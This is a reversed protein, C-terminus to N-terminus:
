RISLRTGLECDQNVLSEFVNGPIEGSFIQIELGPLRQCLDLMGRVKAAMGGTVDTEASGGLADALGPLTEPTIKPIIVGDQDLVGEYNGALLIRAPHLHQALYDFIQETSIITGGKEMDFAVDGYVLPVLGAQLALRAPEVALSKIVGGACIASASPQCRLAPIDESILAKLVVQNLKGASHGVMVFGRWDERSRAGLHTQYQDALVHGYSGSGHGTLLAMDPQEALAGAIEGALRKIAEPRATETGSKDTILSGGLKIFTLTM